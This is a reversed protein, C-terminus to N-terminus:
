GMEYPGSEKIADELEDFYSVDFVRLACEILFYPNYWMHNIGEWCSDTINYFLIDKKDILFMLGYVERFSGDQNHETRVTGYIKEVTYTYSTNEKM